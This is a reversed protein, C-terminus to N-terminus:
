GGALAEERSPTRGRVSAILRAFPPEDARSLAERADSRAREIWDRHRALDALRLRPVGAQRTGLLDGPGRLDLDAEALAFGDTSSGFLRLRAEGNESLRGHLAVCRSPRESRGVRGRLQHLQALGFREASEIVMWTAAPVDIGVEIVTTSVLVRLEGRAFRSAIEDREVASLRGHLLGTPFQRLYQRVKEGHAELSAVAGADDEGEEIRPFVVYAQAGDALAARLQAYVRRREGAPLVETAVPRRGPPLEDIVSLELDGYVTLALSRPIPTATMVLVDPRDGKGQLLRRQEVGFRHQEDVVVLGLRRFRVGKQILAHTGVAIRVEGAEIAALTAADRKSGTLLAVRHRRGLLRELGAHQQEALLETPAMFAGQLDSEAAILLAMAAVITKGSGVDGQLLRLMPEPRRLDDVIERVVRKQADTLRFPLVERAVSRVEDDIRYAHAKPQRIEERRLQALGLQLTLLEDYVLRAFEPGDRRALADADADEPPRHLRRLADVLGPFGYRGRLEEPLLDEPPAADLRDLASAVWRRVTAPGFGALAPYVAVLGSGPQAGPRLTPNVLELGALGAPRAPGHAIVEDGDTWRKLLYPQNFWRVAIAGGEGEIRGRVLVMGRRRTRVARLESLRGRVTWSGPADVARPSVVRRHDEYRSPLHFWLDEISRVGAAELKAARTPGVGKLYRLPTPEPPRRGASREGDNV